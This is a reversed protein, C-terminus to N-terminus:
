ISLPTYHIRRSDGKCHSSFVNFWGFRPTFLSHTQLQNKLSTGLIQPSGTGRKWPPRTQGTFQLFGLARIAHKVSIVLSLWWWGVRAVRVLCAGRVQLAGASSCDIELGMQSCFESLDNLMKTQPAPHRRLLAQAPFARYIQHAVAMNALLMFEEVLRNHLLPLSFPVPGNSTSWSFSFLSLM